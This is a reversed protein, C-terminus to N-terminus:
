AAQANWTPTKGFHQLYLVVKAFGKRVWFKDWASFGGAVLERLQKETFEARIRKDVVRCHIDERKTTFLVDMRPEYDWDKDYKYDVFPWYDLLVQQPTLGAMEAVETLKAWAIHGRKRDRPKTWDHVTDPAERAFLPTELPPKRGLEGKHVQRAPQFYMGGVNERWRLSMRVIAFPETGVLLVNERKWNHKDRGLEITQPEPGVVFFSRFDGDNPYFYISAEAVWAGDLVVFPYEHFRTLLPDWPSNNPRYTEAEVIKYERGSLSTVEKTRYFL